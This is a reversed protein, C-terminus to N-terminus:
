SADVHGGATLGLTALADGGTVDLGSLGNDTLVLDGASNAEATIANGSKSSIATALTAATYSGGALIFSKTAGGGITDTVTDNTGTTITVSGTATRTITTGGCIAPNEADGLTPSGGASSPNQVSGTAAGAYVHEYWGDSDDYAVIVATNAWDPTQELENITTTVFHQGDVPDSNSPHEDEYPPAKLYRVASLLSAPQSGQAIATVLTTFSNM